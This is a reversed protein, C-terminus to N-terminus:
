ERWVEVKLTKGKRFPFVDNGLVNVGDAVLRSAGKKYTVEITGGNRKVMVVTGDLRDPIGKPNIKLNGGFLKLGLLDELIVKYCWSASGTYWSWGARGYENESVYVDASLVYPEGRFNPNHLNQWIPNMRSLLKYGTETKGAELFAQALWVAGHTYQGGNERVGEPYKSIYGLDSEENAPPWLLRIIGDDSM